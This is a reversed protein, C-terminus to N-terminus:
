SSALCLSKLNSHLYLCNCFFSGLVPWLRALVGAIGRKGKGDNDSLNNELDGCKCVWRVVRRGELKLKLADEAWAGCNIPLSQQPAPCSPRRSM